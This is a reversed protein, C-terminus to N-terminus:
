AFWDDTPCAAGCQPCGSLGDGGEVVEVEDYGVDAGCAPCELLIQTGAFDEDHECSM